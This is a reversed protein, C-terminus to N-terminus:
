LLSFSHDGHLKNDHFSTLLEKPNMNRIIKLTNAYKTSAKAHTLPNKKLAKERDLTLTNRKNIKISSFKSKTINYFIFHLQYNRKIGKIKKHHNRKPRCQIIRTNKSFKYFKGQMCVIYRCHAEFLITCASFM